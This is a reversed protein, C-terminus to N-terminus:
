KQLPQPVPDFITNGEYIALQTWNQKQDQKDRRRQGSIEGRGWIDKLRSRLGRNQEKTM